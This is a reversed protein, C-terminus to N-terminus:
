YKNARWTTWNPTNNDFHLNSSISIKIIRTLQLQVWRINNERSCVLKEAAVLVMSLYWLVTRHRAFYHYTCVLVWSGKQHVINDWFLIFFGTSRHWFGFRWCVIDSAHVVVSGSVAMTKAMVSCLITHWHWHWTCSLALVLLMGVCRYGANGGHIVRSM